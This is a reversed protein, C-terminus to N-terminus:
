HGKLWILTNEKIDLSNISKFETKVDISPIINSKLDFIFLKILENIFVM